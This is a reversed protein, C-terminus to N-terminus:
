GGGILPFIALVDGDSLIYNSDVHKSNVLLILSDEIIGHERCIEGVTTNSECRINKLDFRGKRLSAFLKVTINM